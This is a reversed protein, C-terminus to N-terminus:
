IILWIRRLTNVNVDHELMRKLEFEVNIPLERIAQGFITHHILGRHPSIIKFRPTHYIYIM